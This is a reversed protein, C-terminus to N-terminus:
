RGCLRFVLSFHKLMETNFEFQKKNGSFKFTLNTEQSLFVFIQRSRGFARAKSSFKQNFYSRFDQISAVSVNNSDDSVEGEKPM